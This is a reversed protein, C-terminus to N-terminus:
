KINLKHQIDDMKLRIDNINKLPEINERVKNFSKLPSMTKAMMMNVKSLKKLAYRQTFETNDIRNGAIITYNETSQPPQVWFLLVLTAVIGSVIFSQYWIHKIKRQKPLVKIFPTLLKENQEQVFESFLNQSIELEPSIEGTSFYKKLEKEEALSTEGRFYKEVLDNMMEM